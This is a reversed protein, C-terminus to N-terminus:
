QAEPIRYVRGKDTVESAVPRGLKKKLPGALFGRVSHAQWGTAKMMEELTAGRPRSLLAVLADSKTRSKEKRGAPARPTKSKTQSNSEGLERAPDPQMGETM